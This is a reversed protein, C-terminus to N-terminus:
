SAHNTLAVVQAVLRMEEHRSLQSSVVGAGAMLVGLCGEEIVFFAKPVKVHRIFRWNKCKM